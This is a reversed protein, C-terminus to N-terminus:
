SKKIQLTRWVSKTCFFMKTSIDVLLFCFITVCCTYSSIDRWCGFIMTFFKTEIKPRALPFNPKKHGYRLGELWYHMSFNLNFWFMLSLNLSLSLFFSLSIILNVTELVVDSLYFFYKIRKSIHSFLVQWFYHWMKCPCLFTAVDVLWRVPICLM